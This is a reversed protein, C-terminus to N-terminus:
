FSILIARHFHLFRSQGLRSTSLSLLFRGPPGLQLCFRSAVPIYHGDPMRAALSTQSTGALIRQPWNYWLLNTKNLIACFACAYLCTVAPIRRKNTRTPYLVATAIARPHPFPLGSSESSSEPPEPKPHRAELIRLAPSTCRTSQM